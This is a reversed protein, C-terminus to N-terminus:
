GYWSQFAQRFSVEFDHVVAALYCALHTLPDAYHPLLGSRTVIVHMTQLVDSAHTRNHYPCDRCYLPQLPAACQLQCTCEALAVDRQEPCSPRLPLLLEGTASLHAPQRVYRHVRQCSSNVHMSIHVSLICESYPIYTPVCRYGEEIARLYRALAPRKLRFKDILHTEHLLFYALTSLPHGRTVDHLQPQPAPRRNSADTLLGRESWGFGSLAAEERGKGGKMVLEYHRGEM